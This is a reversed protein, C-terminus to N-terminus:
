SNIEWDSFKCVRREHRGGEFSNALFTEVLKSAKGPSTHLSGLCLVNANNHRRTLVAEDEEHVLAARIGRIKNAAISMGIGTTCCLIGAEARNGTVDDTVLKAYDPYDVSDVSDTGHDTVTHGLAALTKLIPARLALAGHDFGISINM